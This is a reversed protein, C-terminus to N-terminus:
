RCTGKDSNDDNILLRLSDPFRVCDNDVPFYRGGFASWLSSRGVAGFKVEAQSICVNGGFTGM